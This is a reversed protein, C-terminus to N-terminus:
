FASELHTLAVGDIAIVDFRVEVHDRDHDALWAAALARIRAQKPEDVAGAAGGYGPTQRAKVECFVLLGDRAVILDLEGPLERVPSRWNHAVVEFGLARYHAAARREGWRGRSRSALNVV